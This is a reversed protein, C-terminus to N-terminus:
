FGALIETSMSIDVNVDMSNDEYICLEEGAEYLIHKELLSIPNWEIYTYHLKGHDYMGEAKKSGNPYYQTFQGHLIGGVWMLASKPAGNEFFTEMPGNLAGNEDYHLQHKIHGNQHYYTHRGVKCRQGGYMRYNKLKHIEGSPYYVIRVFGCNDPHFTDAGILRGREDWCRWLFVREGQSYTGDQALRGNPHWKQYHGHLEGDKISAVTKMHGNPYYSYHIGFMGVTFDM